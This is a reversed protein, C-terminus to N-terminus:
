MTVRHEYTQSFKRLTNKLNDFAKRNLSYYVFKGAKRTCVLNLNKLYRLHQSGESQDDYRALIRLDTACLEVEANVIFELLRQVRPNRLKNLQSILRKVKDQDITKIPSRPNHMNTKESTFSM